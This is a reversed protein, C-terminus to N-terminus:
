ELIENLINRALNFRDKESISYLNKEVEKITGAEPKALLSEIIAKPSPDFM